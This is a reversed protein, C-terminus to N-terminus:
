YEDMHHWEANELWTTPSSLFDILNGLLLYHQREEVALRALIEKEADNEAADARQRYFEESKKELDQAKKYLDVNSLDFDFPKGEEKMRVFVNKVDSLLTTKPLTPDVGEAMEKLVNYHTVEADALLKLITALGKDGCKGALDRYYQEGDKEVQMAFELVGVVSM